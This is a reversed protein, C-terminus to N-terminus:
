LKVSHQALLNVKWRGCSLDSNDMKVREWGSARQTITNKSTGTRHRVIHATIKELDSFNLRTEDM